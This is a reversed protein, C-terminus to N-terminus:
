QSCAPNCFQPGPVITDSCAGAIPQPSMTVKWLDTQPFCCPVPRHNVDYAGFQKSDGLTINFGICGPLMGTPGPFQFLPCDIDKGAINPAFKSRYMTCLIARTLSTQCTGGVLQCFEKPRCYDAATADFDTNFESFDTSVTVLGGNITATLGNWTVDEVFKLADSRIDVRVPTIYNSMNADFEAESIGSGIYIQYKQKTLENPYIFFVYYSAGPQFVNLSTIPVPGGLGKKQTAASVTTDMYYTGNNATLMSRQSFGMGMMPITLNNDGPTTVMQRSLPVGYCSPDSCAEGWTANLCRQAPENPFPPPCDGDRACPENHLSCHGGCNKEVVCAPYVVTSVYQYPSTNATGGTTNGNISLDFSACEPAEVPATFFPDLNVSITEGAAPTVPSLLGTLSGDDDNLVTQRDSAPSGPLHRIRRQPHPLLPTM